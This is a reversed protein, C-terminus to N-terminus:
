STAISEDDVPHVDADERVNGTRLADTAAIAQKFGITAPNNSVPASYRLLDAPITSYAGDNARM